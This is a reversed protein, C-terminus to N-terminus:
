GTSGRGSPCSSNCKMVSRPRWSDSVVTIPCHRKPANCIGAFKHSTYRPRCSQLLRKAHGLGTAPGQVPRSTKWKAVTDDHVEREYLMLKSYSHTYQSHLGSFVNANAATRDQLFLWGPKAVEQRESTDRNGSAGNWLGCTCASVPNGDIPRHQSSFFSLCVFMFRQTSLGWRILGGSM